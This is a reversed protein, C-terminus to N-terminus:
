RYSLIQREQAIQDFLRIRTEAAKAADYDFEFQWRTLKLLLIQHHSLDGIDILSEGRSEIAYIYHGPSHGIAAHATIGPVVQKGDQVFVL